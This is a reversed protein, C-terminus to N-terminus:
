EKLHQPKYKCNGPWGEKSSHIRLLSTRKGYGNATLTLIFQDVSVMEAYRDETLFVAKGKEEFDTDGGEDSNSANEELEVRESRRRRLYADREEISFKAHTLISMSIVADNPALKIGRVGISARGAFIRVDTTPFRICKGKASALLVDQDKECVAVGILRDGKNLKMAIKGNAMVNVFDSLRNRRISGSSTAFM